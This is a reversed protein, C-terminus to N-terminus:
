EKKVLYNEAKRILNQVMTWYEKHFNKDKLKHADYYVSIYNKDNIIDTSIIRMVDDIINQNDKLKFALKDLENIYAIIKNCKKRNKSEFDPTHYNSNYFNIFDNRENETWNSAKVYPDIERKGWEYIIGEMIQRADRVKNYDIEIEKLLEIKKIKEQLALSEVALKNAKRSNINSYILAIISIIIPIIQLTLKSIEDIKM